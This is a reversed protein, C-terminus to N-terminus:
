IRWNTLAQYWPVEGAVRPRYSVTQQSGSVPRAGGGGGYGGGAYRGGYGGYGGYGGNGGQNAMMSAQVLQRWYDVYAPWGEAETINTDIPPKHYMEPNVAHTEEGPKMPVGASLGVVTPPYAISSMANPALSFMEPNIGYNQTPGVPFNFSMQDFPMMPVTPYNFPMGGYPAGGATIGYNTIPTTPQTGGFPPRWRQWMRSGTRRKAPQSRAGTVRSRGGTPRWTVRRTTTVGGGGSDFRIAM